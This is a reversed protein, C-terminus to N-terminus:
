SARVRRKRQDHLRQVRVIQEPRVQQSAQAPPQGGQPANQQGPGPETVIEFENIIIAM